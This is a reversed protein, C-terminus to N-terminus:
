APLGTVLPPFSGLNLSSGRFTESLRVFITGKLRSSKQLCLSPDLLTALSEFALTRAQDDDWLMFKGLKLEGPVIETRLFKAEPARPQFLSPFIRKCFKM